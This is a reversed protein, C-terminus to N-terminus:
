LLLYIGRLVHRFDFVVRSKYPCKDAESEDDEDDADKSGDNEAVKKVSADTSVVDKAPVDKAAEVSRTREATMTMWSFSLRTREQRGRSNRLNSRRRPDSTWRWRTVDHRHGVVLERQKEWCKPIEITKEQIKVPREPLDRASVVFDPHREEMPRTKRQPRVSAEKSTPAAPQKEQRNATAETLVQLHISTLLEGAM